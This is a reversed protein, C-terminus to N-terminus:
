LNIKIPNEEYKIHCYVETTKSSSHGMWEQIKALNINISVLYSAFSHRLTHPHINKNIKARKAAAKLVRTLSTASYKHAGQGNFLYTHPKYRKYYERLTNLCNDSLPVNRDKLGKSQKVILVGNASDIDGIKLNILESRRLGHCFLVEILARHKLNHTSAIMKKVEDMSLVTPLTKPKKPLDIQILRKRKNIKLYYFKIAAIAHVISSYGYLGQLSLVYTKLDNDSLYRIDRGKFHDVFLRFQKSYSKVTQPSKSLGLEQEFLQIKCM